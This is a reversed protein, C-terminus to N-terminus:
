LTFHSISKSMSLRTLYPSILSMPVKLLKTFLRPAPAMGFMLTLCQYLEGRWAFNTLPRMKHHLPVCLYSNKLDIKILWDNKVETLTEIKLKQYQIHLNLEKINTILRFKDPKEIAFIPSIFQGYQPNTRKISRAKLM